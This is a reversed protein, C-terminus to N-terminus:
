DHATLDFFFPFGARNQFAPPKPFALPAIGKGFCQAFKINPRVEINFPQGTPSIDGILIFRQPKPSKYSDWCTAIVTGFDTGLKDFMERQYYKVGPDDEAQKALMLRDDFTEAQAFLSICVFFILTFIERGIKVAVAKSALGMGVLIKM